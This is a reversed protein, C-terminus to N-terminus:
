FSFIADTSICIGASARGGEQMRRSAHDRLGGAGNARLPGASEMRRNRVRTSWGSTASGGAGDAKRSGVPRTQGDRVRRSQGGNRVQRGTRRDQVQEGETDALRRGSDEEDM